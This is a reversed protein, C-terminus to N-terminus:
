NRYNYKYLIPKTNDNLAESLTFYNHNADFSVAEGQPEGIYPAKVPTEALAEWLAQGQSRQWYFIDQRNKIIIKSGDLSVTGASADKFAFLGVKYMTNTTETTYPFPLVYLTSRFDRKTVVYIDQTVPDVLLSEADHSGDPYRLDIRSFDEPTWTVSKGYHESQYEPEKFKYITYNVRSEKNDGLDAVYLYPEQTKSDLAIEMDEWDINASGMITYRSMIEGTQSDILFFTNAHGSDNHAWIMNENKVSVALGSTESIDVTGKESPLPDFDETVNMGFTQYDTTFVQHQEWDYPTKTTIADNDSNECGLLAIAGILLIVWHRHKM